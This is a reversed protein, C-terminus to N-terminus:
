GCFCEFLRHFSLSRTEVLHGCSTTVNWPGLIAIKSAVSFAVVLSSSCEDNNDIAALLPPTTCSGGKGNNNNNVSVSPFQLSIILIICLKVENANNLPNAYKLFGRKFYFLFFELWEVTMQCSPIIARQFGLTANISDLLNSLYLGCKQCGDELSRRSIPCFQYDAKLSLQLGKPKSTLRCACLLQM